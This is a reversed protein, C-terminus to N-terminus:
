AAPPAAAEPSAKPKRRKEVQARAAALAQKGRSVVQERVQPGSRSVLLATAGLGTLVGVAFEVEVFAVAAAVGVVAGLPHAKATTIAQQVKPHTKLKTIVSPGSAAAKTAGETATAGEGNAPTATENSESM